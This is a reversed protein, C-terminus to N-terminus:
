AGHHRASYGHEGMKLVFSRLDDQSAQQLLSDAQEPAGPCLFDALQRLDAAYGGARYACQLPSKRGFHRIFSVVLPPLGDLVAPPMDILAVM